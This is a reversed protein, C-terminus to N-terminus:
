EFAQKSPPSIEGGKIVDSISFLALAMTISMQRYAPSLTNVLQTLFKHVALVGYFLPSFACILTM